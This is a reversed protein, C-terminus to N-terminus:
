IYLDYKEAYKAVEPPLSETRELEGDSLDLRLETASIDIMVSDTLYIHMGSFFHNPVNELGRVDVIRKAIEQGVHETGLEYGPRSVVIHDSSTLVNEWDRWTKIDTWSDAGMVFFIKDDPHLLRLEALTEVTYRKEGKEVELPSVKIRDRDQTALSLMAYRHFASTPPRDPKHPAHFAPIFVFQDLEFLEVLREAIALHGVHVPDFTGGFFAIKKM